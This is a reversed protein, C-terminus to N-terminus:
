RYADDHHGFTLLKVVGREEDITFILVFCGAIHVRRRNQLPKRLPKFHRPNALVEDVKSRIKRLVEPNKKALKTFRKDVVDAIELDYM